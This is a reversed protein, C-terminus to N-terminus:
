LKREKSEKEAEDIMEGLIDIAEDFIFEFDRDSFIIEDDTPGVNQPTIGHKQMIQDILMDIIYNLEQEDNDAFLNLGVEQPQDRKSIGRHHNRQPRLRFAGTASVVLFLAFSKQFLM